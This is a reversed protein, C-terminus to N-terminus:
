KKEQKQKDDRAMIYWKHLMYGGTIVAVIVTAIQDYNASLWALASGSIGVVATRDM